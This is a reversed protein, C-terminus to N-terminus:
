ESRPLLDFLNWRSCQPCRHLYTSSEFSCNACSFVLIKNNELSCGIRYENCAKEYNELRQLLEARYIHLAPVDHGKNVVEEFQAVAEDLMELRLYLHGLLLNLRYDSPQKNISGDYLEIIRSPNEQELCIREMELLLIVSPSQKIARELIKLAEESEGAKLYTDSIELYAPLFEKEEKLLQRFIDIAEEYEGAEKQKVGYEFMIGQYSKEEIEKQKRNRTLSIIKKQVQEAEAWNKQNILLERKKLHAFLNSNDLEIIQKIPQLAESHRGSREYDDVLKLLIDVNDEKLRHAKLHNEIAKPFNNERSYIDGIGVYAYVHDSDRALVKNFNVLADAPRGASLLNFGDNYLQNVYQKQRKKK